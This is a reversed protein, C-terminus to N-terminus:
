ASTCTVAATQRRSIARSIARWSRSRAPVGFDTVVRPRSTGSVIIAMNRTDIGTDKKVSHAYAHQIAM